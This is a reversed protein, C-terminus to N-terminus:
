CPNRSSRDPKDARRRRELRGADEEYERAMASLVRAMASSAADRAQSRYVAARKRLHTATSTRFDIM